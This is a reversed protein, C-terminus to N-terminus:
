ITKVIGIQLLHKAIEENSNTNSWNSFSAKLSKSAGNYAAGILPSLGRITAAAMSATVIM